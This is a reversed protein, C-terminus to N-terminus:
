QVRSAAAKTVNVNATFSRSSHLCASSPTVGGRNIPALAFRTIGLIIKKISIEAKLTAKKNNNRFMVLRLLFLVARFYATLINNQKNAQSTDNSFSDSIQVSEKLHVGLASECLHSRKKKVKVSFYKCIFLRM